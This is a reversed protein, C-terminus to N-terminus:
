EEKLRRFVFLITNRETPRDFGTPRDGSGKRMSVKLTEGEVKYIAEHHYLAEGKFTTVLDFAKGEADFAVITSKAGPVDHSWDHGAITTVQRSAHDRTDWVSKDTERRLLLWRGQLKKLEAKVAPDVKAPPAAGFSVSVAAVALLLAIIRM